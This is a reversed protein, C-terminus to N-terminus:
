VWELLRELAVLLEPDDTEDRLSMIEEVGDIAFLEEKYSFDGSAACTGFYEALITAVMRHIQLSDFSFYEILLQVDVDERIVHM